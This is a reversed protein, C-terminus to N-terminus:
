IYIFHHVELKHLCLSAIINLNDLMYHIPTTADEKQFLFISIIKWLSLMARFAINQAKDLRNYNTEM